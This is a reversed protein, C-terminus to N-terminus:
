EAGEILEAAANLLETEDGDVRFYSELERDGLRWAIVVLGGNEVAKDITWTARDVGKLSQRAIFVPPRGTITFIVGRDTISLTARSRFGLGHAAIRELPQGSVTTAVYLGTSSSRTSGPDDPVAAPPELDSQRGKRARWGLYMALVAVALVAVIIVTPILRDM